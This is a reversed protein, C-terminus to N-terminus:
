FIHLVGYYAKCTFHVMMCVEDFATASCETNGDSLKLKLSYKWKSTESEKGFKCCLWRADATGELKKSCSPTARARYVLTESNIAIIEAVNWFAFPARDITAAPERLKQSM